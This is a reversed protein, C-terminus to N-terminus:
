CPPPSPKEQLAKRSLTVLERGTDLDIVVATIEQGVDVVEGPHDIRDWFMRREAVGMSIRQQM